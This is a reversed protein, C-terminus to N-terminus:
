IISDSFENILGLMILRYVVGDSLREVLMTRGGKENFKENDKNNGTFILDTAAKDQKAVLSAAYSLPTHYKELVLQNNLFASAWHNTKYQTNKKVFLTLINFVSDRFYEPLTDFLVNWQEQYESLETPHASIQVDHKQKKEMSQEEQNFPSTERYSRSLHKVDEVYEQKAYFPLRDSVSSEISM